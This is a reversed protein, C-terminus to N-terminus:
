YDCIAHVLIPVWITGSKEKMLQFIIGGVLLGILSATLFHMIYSVSLSNWGSYNFIHMSSFALNPVLYRVVTKEDKVLYACVGRCIFEEVFAVFILYYFIRYIGMIKNDSTVLYYIIRGMYVAILFIVLMWQKKGEVKMYMENIFEKKLMVISIVLIIFTMVFELLNQALLGPINRSSSEISIHIGKQKLVYIIFAMYLIVSACIIFILIIRFFLPKKSINM